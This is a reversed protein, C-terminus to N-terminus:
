LSSLDPPPIVTVREGRGVFKTTVTQRVNRSELSKVGSGCVRVCEGFFM